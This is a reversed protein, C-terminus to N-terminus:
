RVGANVAQQIQKLVAQFVTDPEISDICRAPTGLPCINRRCGECEPPPTCRLVTHGEGLPAWFGVPDHSSSIVICNVGAAAAMHVSGTDNGLYFPFLSMFCISKNLDRELGEAHFAKGQPLNQIVEAIAEKDSPGGILVPVASTETVIRRLLAIYKPLPWHSVQQKGGICVIFPIAGRPLSLKEKLKGAEAKEAETFPMLHSGAQVPHPNQHNIRELLLDTGRAYATKLDDLKRLVVAGRVPHESIRSFFGKEKRIKVPLSKGDRRLYFIQQYRRRCPLPFLSFFRWLRLYNESVIKIEDVFGAKRVLELPSEAFKSVHKNLLTIRAEPYANRIGSFVPFLVLIDGLTGSTFVLINMTKRQLM